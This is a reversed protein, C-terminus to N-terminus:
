GTLATENFSRPSRSTNQLRWFLRGSLPRVRWPHEALWLRLRQHRVALRSHSVIPPSFHQDGICKQWLPTPTSWSRSACAEKGEPIISCIKTSLLLFPPLPLDGTATRSPTNHLLKYCFFFPFLFNVYVQLRAQMPRAETWPAKRGTELTLEFTFM